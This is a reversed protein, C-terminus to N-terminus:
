GYLNCFDLYETNSLDIKKFQDHAVLFVLLNANKKIEEIDLLNFEPHFEINPECFLLQYKIKLKSIIKISPSERLDDVNPKFTLGFIGIKFEEIKKYKEEIYKEIKDAVWNIKKENVDRSQKMLKSDEPFASILFWPDIPICHGGVGCGPNLINVRPHFNALQILQNVDVGLKDSIISIENAFAINVDRFANETLKVLEATKIDTTFIRGTCFNSYFNKIRIRYDKDNCGIIRNNSKLENIINGPLVREPCYALHIEDKAFHTNKQIFEGIEETTSVPCTSEIIVISNKKLSGLISNIASFVFSLDPKPILNEYYVPTPVAIIFIKSYNPSNSVRLNGNNFNRFFIEKLHPEEIHLEGRDIAEIINKDIDVGLVNLGADAALAATPLGIYGLGVVCCDNM